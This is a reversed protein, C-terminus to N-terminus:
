DCKISINIMNQNAVYNYKIDECIGKVITLGLGDEKELHKFELPNFPKGDDKIMASIRSSDIKVHIDIYRKKNNEYGYVAINKILEECCLALKKASKEEIHNKALFNLINDIMIGINEIDGSVSFSSTTETEKPILTLMTLTKDKQREYLSFAVIYILVIFEGIAFAIWIYESSFFAIYSMVPIVALAQFCSVSIALFKKSQIQYNVMLIYNLAYLPICVAFSRISKNLSIIDSVGFLGAFNQPFLMILVLLGVMFSLLIKLATNVAIKVGTYDGSGILVGAIPQLAQSSGGIFISSIMLLNFCVAMIQMGPTGLTNLITKNVFVLRLTMLGAALAMPLGTMIIQGIKDLEFSFNLKLNSTKKFFHSFSFGLGLLYGISTSLAAGFVGMSFYKVLVIDFILNLANALIIVMSALKPNSDIRIFISIAPVLLYLPASLMVVRAYTRVLPKLATDSCLMNVIPNLFLVGIIMIIVSAFITLIMSLTFYKMGEKTELKGLYMALMMAGGVNILANIASMFQIIPVCLNIASLAEGGVINGVISADVVVGLTVAVSSLISTLLYTKFSKNILYPNRTLEM